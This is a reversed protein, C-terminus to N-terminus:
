GRRRAAAGWADGRPPESSTCAWTDDISGPDQGTMPVRTSPACAREDSPTPDAYVDDAGRM